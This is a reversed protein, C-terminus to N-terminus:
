PQLRYRFTATGGEEELIALLEDDAVRRYTLRVQKGEEVGVFTAHREGHEVLRLILPGDKESDWPQLAASFHRLRLVPVEEDLAITFFEYLRVQGQSVWRWMGMLQGGAPAAWIEQSLDEDGLTGRWDGALWGLDPAVVVGEGVAGTSTPNAVALALAGVLWVERMPERM